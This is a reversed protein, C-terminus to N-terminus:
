QSVIASGGDLGFWGSICTKERSRRRLYISIALATSGSSIHVPTGGAFHLVGLRNAWGRNSWISHAIADYVLTAWIFVFIASRTRRFSWYYDSFQSIHVNSLPFHFLISDCRLAAFMADYVYFLFFPIRPAGPRNVQTNRLFAYKLGVNNRLAFWRLINIPGPEFNKKLSKNRSRVQISVVAVAAMSLYLASLANKKSLLGSYLFGVGPSM